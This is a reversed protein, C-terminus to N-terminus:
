GRLPQTRTRPQVRAGAAEYISAHRHYQHTTDGQKHQDQPQGDLAHSGHRHGEAGVGETALVCEGVLNPMAVVGVRMVWTRLSVRALMRRRCGM